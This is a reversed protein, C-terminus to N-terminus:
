KNMSDKFEQITEQQHVHLMKNILLMVENFNVISVMEEKLFEYIKGYLEGSKEYSKENM